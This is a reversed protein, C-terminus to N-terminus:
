EKNMKQRGKDTSLHATDPIRRVDYMKSRVDYMM